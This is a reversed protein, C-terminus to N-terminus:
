ISVKLQQAALQQCREKSWSSAPVVGGAQVAQQVVHRESSCPADLLVRDYMGAEFTAWHKAADQGTCRVRRRLSGPLYAALVASLRQRRNPDMENCVLRGPQQAGSAYGASSPTSGTAADDEGDSGADSSSPRDEADAAPAQQQQQQESTSSGAVHVETPQQVSDLQPAEALREQELEPQQEPQEHDQDQLPQQQQQEQLALQELLGTSLGVAGASSQQPQQAPVGKLLQQALVLSMGGPAACMELVAHHPQPALLLPPLVSAFDMWYFQRLQTYPCDPPPPYSDPPQPHRCVCLLCIM